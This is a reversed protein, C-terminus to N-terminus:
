HSINVCRDTRNRQLFRFSVCVLAQAGHCENAYLALPKWRWMGPSSVLNLKLSKNMSIYTAQFHYLLTKFGSVGSMTSSVNLLASWELQVLLQCGHHICSLTVSLHSPQQVSCKAQYEQTRPIAKQPPWLMPRWSFSSRAEGGAHSIPLSPFSLITESRYTMILSTCHCSSAVAM